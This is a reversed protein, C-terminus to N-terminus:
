QTRKDPINIILESSNISIQCGDYVFSISTEQGDTILRDLSDVDLVEQLPTDFATPRVDNIEALASMIATSPKTRSCSYERSVSLSNRTGVGM